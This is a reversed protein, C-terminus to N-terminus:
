RRGESRLSRRGAIRRNAAPSTQTLDELRVYSPAEHYAPLEIWRPGTAVLGRRRLIEGLALSYVKAGDRGLHHPDFFVGPDYNARRGDIVALNPFRAQTARLFRTYEADFGSRECEAQLGPKMPPVLWFVPIHHAAALAFFRGLFAANVPDPTLRAFHSRRWAALDENPDIKSPGIQAGSNLERHHRSWLTAYKLRESRPRLGLCAMVRARITYRGRISPLARSATIAAFLDADRATWSLELCERTNLLHPWHPLNHRPGLGLLSPFFDVLVAAPRARSELARRLLFFSSPAQGGGVAFNYARQGTRGEILQPAIGGQVLSDGFCLIELGASRRAADLGSLRWCWEQPTMLDLDRSGVSIEVVFVLGLMGLLGLPIRRRTAPPRLLNMDDGPLSL